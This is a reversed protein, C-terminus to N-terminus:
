PITVRLRVEVGAAEEEEKLIGAVIRWCWKELPLAAADAEHVSKLAVALSHFPLLWLRWLTWLLVFVVLDGCDSSDM